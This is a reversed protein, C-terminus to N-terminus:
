LIIYMSHENGVKSVANKHQCKRRAFNCTSGVYIDKINLDKCCLKYILGKQYREMKNSVEVNKFRIIM